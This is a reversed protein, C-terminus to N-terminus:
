VPGDARVAKSLLEIMRTDKNKQAISLATQGYQDVEDLDFCDLGLLYEVAEYSSKKSAIILAQKSFKDNNIDYNINEFLYKLIEVHNHMASFYILDSGYYSANRELLYTIVDIAVKQGDDTEIFILSRALTGLPSYIGKINSIDAGYEFLINLINMVNSYDDDTFSTLAEAVPHSWEKCYFNPNANNKLLAEVISFNRVHCADTLLTSFGRSEFPMGYIKKNINNISPIHEIAEQTNKKWIANYVKGLIQSEKYQFLLFITFLVIVFFIIKRKNKKM